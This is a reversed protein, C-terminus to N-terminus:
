FQVRYLVAATTGSYADNRVGVLGPAGVRRAGATAEVGVWRSRQHRAVLEVGYTSTSGWQIPAPACGNLSGACVAQYRARLVGGRLRVGWTSPGEHHMIGLIGEYSSGAIHPYEPGFLGETRQNKVPKSGYTLAAGLELRGGHPMALARLEYGTTKGDAPAVRPGFAITLPTRSQASAVAPLVTLLFSALPRGALARRSM